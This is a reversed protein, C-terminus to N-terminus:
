EAKQGYISRPYIKKTIKQKIKEKLVSLYYLAGSFLKDNFVVFELTNRIERTWVLKYGLSGPGFDYEYGLDLSYQLIHRTLCSGPSYADYNKDHMKFVCHLISESFLCIEAAIPKKDSTLVWARLWKNENATLLLNRLQKQRVKDSIYYKRGIESNECIKLLMKSFKGVDEINEYFQIQPNGMREMKKKLKRVTEKFNKSQSALYDNWSLSTKVIPCQSSIRILFKKNKSILAKKLANPTNSNEPIRSFFTVDWKKSSFIEQVIDSLASNSDGTNIFDCFTAFPSLIFEIAFVPIKLFNYKFLTKIKRLPAIASNQRATLVFLDIDSVSEIVSSFWQFRMFVYNNGEDLLGNWIEKLKYFDEKENIIDVSVAM